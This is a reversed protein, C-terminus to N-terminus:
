IEGDEEENEVLDWEGIFRPTVIFARRFCVKASYIPSPVFLRQEPEDVAVVLYPGDEAAPLVVTVDGGRTSAHLPKPNWIDGPCVDRLHKFPPRSM